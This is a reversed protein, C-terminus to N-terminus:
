EQSKNALKIINNPGSDYIQCSCEYDSKLKFYTKVKM